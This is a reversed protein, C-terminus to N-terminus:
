LFLVYLSLQFLKSSFFSVKEKSEISLESLSLSSFFIARGGGERGGVVFLITGGGGGGGGERGGVVFLVTRGGGGEGNRAVVVM